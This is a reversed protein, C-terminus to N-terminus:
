TYQKEVVIECGWEDDSFGAACTQDFAYGDPLHLTACELPPLLSAVHWNRKATASVSSVTKLQSRAM